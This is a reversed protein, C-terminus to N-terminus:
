RRRNKMAKAFAKHDWKIVDDDMESLFIGLKALYNVLDAMNDYNMFGPEDHPRHIHDEGGHTCLTHAPINLKMEDESRDAAFEVNDSAFLLGDAGEVTADRKWKTEINYEDLLEDFNTYSPGTIYYRQKGLKTCHGTMEFNLNMFINDSSVPCNEFFHRSGHMGMEEGSFAAFIVSRKPRIGSRKWSRALGMMTTTGAANDNAGNYISDGDVIRGIGVHDFHASFIIYENKLDPDSGELYALVNQEKLEGSRRSKFTYPQFFSDMGPLPKLGSSKFNEAIFRAAEKMEPSGNQRGKMEDSALYHAWDHLEEASVKESDSQASSNQFFLCFAFLVLFYRTTSKTTYCTQM